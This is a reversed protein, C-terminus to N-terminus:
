PRRDRQKSLPMGVKVPYRLITRLKEAAVRRPDSLYIEHHLGDFRLGELVAFKRMAEITAKERDYRGVHLMQVSRGEDLTEIGVEAVEADKGKERLKRVADKVDGAVVFDPTRILLTWDQDSRWLGELKCVGYDRGAAKKAMKITFAVNYLAALKRQFEPGGGKGQGAVGLYMAPRVNILVPKKAAIYETKHEVYLDLKKM